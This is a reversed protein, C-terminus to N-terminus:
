GLPCRATVTSVIVEMDRTGVHFGIGLEGCCGCAAFATWRDLVVGVLRHGQRQAERALPEYLTSADM